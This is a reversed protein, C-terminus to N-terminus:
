CKRVLHKLWAFFGDFVASGWSQSQIGCSRRRGRGACQAGHRARRGEVQRDDTAAHGAQREGTGGGARRQPHEQDLALREGGRDCRREVAAHGRDGRARSAQEPREADPGLERARGLRDPVDPDALAVRRQGHVVVMARDAVLREAVDDLVPRDPARQQAPDLLQPRGRQGERRRVLDLVELAARGPGQQLERAAAARAGGQDGRGFAPRRRGAGGAADLDQAPVVALGPDDGGERM